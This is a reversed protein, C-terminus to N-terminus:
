GRMENLADLVVPMSRRWDAPLHESVEFALRRGDPAGEAARDVVLRRLEAAPLQYVGVNINSWILKEPWAARAEGLPLDGEPPPTFSEILDIPSRGIIDRCSATKGDFHCGVIKGADRLIGFCEEYIPLLFQEYRKPGLTEATFNELIEIYHGPGEAVIEIQRRFNRRMVDYLAQMEDGYEYLHVGFNELGVYDVLIHQIPTRSLSPCMIVHPAANKEEALYEDYRPEFRTHEVIWTMVRYDAPTEIPYRYHWGNRFTEVLEGAPTATTYRRITCGDEQYDATTTKLDPPHRKVTGGFASVGLGQEFMAAWAPDKPCGSGNLENAYITYPIVDPREGAWFAQMRERINM